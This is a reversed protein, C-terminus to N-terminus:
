RIVTQSSNELAILNISTGPPQAFCTTTGLRMRHNDVREVKRRRRVVNRHTFDNVNHNKAIPQFTPTINKTNTKDNLAEHPEMNAPIVVPLVIYGRTKGPANRMVRGVSQVVDIQSNRPTLFLVADLAPVDVGESLCRVNSLIRCTNDPTEAKLWTIKDGKQTANMSGDVHEAECRLHTAAEDDDGDAAEGKQYAEVVAQFMGAINKSSVKHSKGGVQREIVQCFAVARRMPSADGSLEESLGQKALAKWCGILKAADDVRLENNDDKLLSQLRRSVHSEEVSLVIVKYDVLLGRKVAQSFTITYLAPGYLGEDDMSCLVVNDREASAKASDGFIRPTATMYLRRKGGVYEDDYVKVFHSEDEGEFKAGTTRHAEDCIILDFNPLNHEAQAAHIVEISHYTAFVVSMHEADHLRKMEKALRAPNTTAPYRLEHAYTQVADDDKQRRKGVDSDSCVAFSHLPTGSEQTWETLTQSLLALSPVLFLVRKGAGAVQEAIKLSTFTKGTGCAMILKGREATQLGHVVAHVATGQHPRLAKKAKMAPAKKPAYRAWDIVSEELAELDIKTVPIQQDRLAEEAHDSWLSTTAVIVRYSFPRKGSATFFSDLDAKQMRYDAAYLKCQIAHAEGSRTEAVLDIGVDRKDIGQKAAWDAYTLVERYLDRYAPENTLYRVTLEEFYTGHERNTLSAERYRDLLIQLASVSANESTVPAYALAKAAQPAIVVGDVGIAVANTAIVTADSAICSADSVICAASSTIVSDDSEICAADSEICPAVSVICSASSGTVAADSAIM